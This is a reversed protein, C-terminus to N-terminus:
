GVAKALAGVVALSGLADDEAPLDRMVCLVQELLAIANSYLSIGAYHGALVLIDAMEEVELGEMLGWYFHIALEGNARQQALLSIICRERDVPPLREEGPWYFGDRLAEWIAAAGPYRGALAHSAGDLMADRSYCRRLRALRKAGLIGVVGAAPPGPDNAQTM